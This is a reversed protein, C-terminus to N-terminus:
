GPKQRMILSVCTSTIQNRWGEEEIHHNLYAEIPNVEKWLRPVNAQAVWDFCHSLFDWLHSKGEERQPPKPIVRFQGKKNDSGVSKYGQWMPNIMNVPSGM